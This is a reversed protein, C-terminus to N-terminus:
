LALTGKAIDSVRLTSSTIALGVLTAYDGAQLDSALMLKGTTRSLAYVRNKVLVGSGCYIDGIRCVAVTCGDLADSIAVGGFASLELSTAAAKSLGRTVADGIVIPEAVVGSTVTPSIVNDDMRLADADISAFAGTPLKDSTADLQTSVFNTGIRIVGSSIAIGVISVYDGPALQDAHRIRGRRPSVIYLQNPSLKGDGVKLDGAEVVVVIEGANASTLAFGSYVSRWQTESDSLYALGDSYVTILDGKNIREGAETTFVSEDNGEPTCVGVSDEDFLISQSASSKSNQSISQASDVVLQKSPLLLVQDCEALSQLSDVALVSEGSLTVSNAESNSQLSPVIIYPSVGLLPASVESRSHIDNPDTALDFPIRFGFLETISESSEVGLVSSGSLLFETAESGSEADDPTADTDRSISANSCQSASQSSDPTVPVGINVDSALSNSELSPPSLLLGNTGLIVNSCRSPSELSISNVVIAPIRQLEVHELYISRLQGFAAGLTVEPSFVLEYTGAPITFYLDKDNLYTLTRLRDSSGEEYIDVHVQYGANPSASSVGMFNWATNLLGARGIKVKVVLPTDEGRNRVGSGPLDSKFYYWNDGKFPLLDEAPSPQYGRFEKHYGFTIYDTQLLAQSCRSASQVSDTLLATHMGSGHIYNADAPSEASDVLMSSSNIGLVPSLVEPQSQSSDVSLNIDIFPSEGQSMSQSDDVSIETVVDFSIYPKYSSNDVQYYKNSFNEEELLCIIITNSGSERETSVMETIDLVVDGVEPTFAVRGKDSVNGEQLEVYTTPFESTWRGAEAIFSQNVDEVKLHLYVPFRTAVSQVSFELVARELSYSMRDGIILPDRDVDFNRVIIDPESCHSSSEVSSLSLLSNRNLSPTSTSSKIVVSDPRLDPIVNLPSAESSSQSGVAELPSPGVIGRGGRTLGNYLWKVEHPTLVRNDYLRLDDFQGSPSSGGGTLRRVSDGSRDYNSGAHPASSALDGNIYLRIEGSDQYTMVIHNMDRVSSVTASVSAVSTSVTVRNSSPQVQIALYVSDKNYLFADGGYQSTDQWHISVSASATSGNFVPSPIICHSRSGVLLSRSGGNEVPFNKWMDDVSGGLVKELSARNDGSSFDELKSNSENTDDLSPCYWLSEDLGDLYLHADLNVSSANSFSVLDEANASGSIALAFSQCHPLTQSSDLPLQSERSVDGSLSCQSVSDVSSALIKVKIRFSEAELGAESGTLIVQSDKALSFSRANSASEVSEAPANSLFLNVSSCEAISEISQATLEIIGGAVSPSSALRQVERQTIARDFLRIDKLQGYFPSMPAIGSNDYGGIRGIVNNTKNRLGDTSAFASNPLRNTSNGINEVQLYNQSWTEESVEFVVEGDDRTVQIMTYLGYPDDVNLGFDYQPPDFFKTRLCVHYFSQEADESLNIDWRRPGTPDGGAFFWDLRLQKGSPYIRAGVWMGSSRGAGINGLIGTTKNRPSGLKVWFSVTMEKSGQLPFGETEESSSSHRHYLGKAANSAFTVTGTEEDWIDKLSYGKSVVAYKHMRSVHNPQMDTNIIADKQTEPTHWSVEGGIGVFNNPRYSVPQSESDDVSLSVRSAYRFDLSLLSSEDTYTDYKTFRVNQSPFYNGLPHQVPTLYFVFDVYSDEGNPGAKSAVLEDIISTVNASLTSGSSYDRYDAEVQASTQHKRFAQNFVFGNELLNTWSGKIGAIVVKQGVSDVSPSYASLKINLHTDEYGEIIESLNEGLDYRAMGVLQTPNNFPTGRIGSYNTLKIETFGFGVSGGSLYVTPSAQNTVLEAYGFSSVNHQIITM